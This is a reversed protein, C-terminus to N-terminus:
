QSGSANELPENESPTWKPFAFSRPELVLKAVNFIHLLRLRTAADFGNEHVHLSSCNFIRLEITRNGVKINEKGVPGGITIDQRPPAPFLFKLWNPDAAAAQHRINASSLM